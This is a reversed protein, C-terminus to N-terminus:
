ATLAFLQKANATTARALEELPLERKAALLEGVEVVFAPENRRSRKPHPALYPSDTELVIRDLPAQVAAELIDQASKYTIVGGFGLYFGRAVVEKMEQIGEAFCHFVGPQAGEKDLYHKDLMALLDSFAKRCHLVIPLKYERALDLAKILYQKQEDAGTKDWHYDLGIEGVAVLAQDELAQILDPWFVQAEQAVENPGTAATLQLQKPFEKKLALGRKLTQPDTCINVVQEVRAELCRGLIAGREEFLQQDGLHAHTDIWM